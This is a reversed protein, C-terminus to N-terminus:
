NGDSQRSSDKRDGAALWRAVQSREVGIRRALEAKKLGQADMRRRLEVLFELVQAGALVRLRKPEDYNLAEFLGSANVPQKGTRGM